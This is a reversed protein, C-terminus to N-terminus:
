TPRPPPRTMPPWWDFGPAPMLTPAPGGVVALQKVDLTAPVLGSLNAQGLGIVGLAVGFLLLHGGFRGAGLTNFLDAFHRGPDPTRPPPVTDTM